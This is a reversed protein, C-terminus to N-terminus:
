GLVTMTWSKLQELCTTTTNLSRSWSGAPNLYFNLATVIAFFFVNLWVAAYIICPWCQTNTPSLSCFIAYTFAFSHPCTACLCFFFIRCCLLCHSIERLRRDVKSLRGKETFLTSPDQDHELSRLNVSLATRSKRTSPSSIFEKHITIHMKLERWTWM